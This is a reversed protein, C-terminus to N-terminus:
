QGKLREVMRCGHNNGLSCAKAADAGAAAMDGKHFYAGGRELHAEANPPQRTIYWNWMTIIEDWKKERALLRDANRYAELNTPDLDIVRRFDRYAADFNASKWHAMGRWFLIEADEGEAKVVQDYAAIAQPWKYARHLDFAADRGPNSPAAVASAVTPEHDDDLPPSRYILVALVGFLAVYCGFYIRKYGRPIWDRRYNWILSMAFLAAFVLGQFVTM